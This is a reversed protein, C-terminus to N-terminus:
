GEKGKRQKGTKGEMKGILDYVDCIGPRDLRRRPKRERLKVGM